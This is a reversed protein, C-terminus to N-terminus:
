RNNEQKNLNKMWRKLPRVANDGPHISYMQNNEIHTLKMTNKRGSKTLEYAPDKNIERILKNYDKM